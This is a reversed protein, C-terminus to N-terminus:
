LPPLSERCIPCQLRYRMWGELCISHFIHRCPTVMYARRTFISPRTSVGGGDGHGELSIIPIDIDQMCIACDFVKRGKHGQRHLNATQSEPVTVHTFGLPMLSGAEEDDERLVPHYDYAPPAWGGPVFFRPGLVEQSALVWVQAWVWAALVLFALRDTDVFLFNNDTTYFYVFPTLRLISQGIVFEWRLAKRCNRFINRYIQPCWFSLYIMSLANTYYSRIAKPWTAAYLSLFLLGMLTFYFRSYMAGLERRTNGTTTQTAPQGAPTTDEDAAADFEQDPPIIVPMAGTSGLGIATVTPPIIDVGPATITVGPANNATSLPINIPPTGRRDRERVEPAQVTWIDMLFKMGFFSVCMFALFAAASLTLFAADSFLVFVTFAGCAFGDGMSMIAITYFSVRSRTSPTSTDKMQKILLYIESAIVLAFAQIGRTVSRIHIELKPGRLHTGQHRPFEPPGQSELIFGCDPSFIVASMVLGPINTFSAGTPFRLENELMSLNSLDDVLTGAPTAAVHQQLYLIYECHPTPFIQEGPNNPSSSWPYTVFVSKRRRAIAASLTKNLLQQTPLFTAKSRSFHPLAFIGPFKEGTTSLLVSGLEPYHVGHLSMEWGDGSSQEDGISLEAKIERVQVGESEFVEGRTEDFKISLDGSKGTINRNFAQTTYLLGPALMSLNLLPAVRGEAMKSRVWKGRVIGTVNQYFPVFATESHNTPTPPADVDEPTQVNYRNGLHRGRYPGLVSLVQERAKAQAKPLLDWAYNDEERLGTANIWRENVADFDEYHTSNFIQLAHEEAQLLQERELRRHPTSRQGDPAITLFILLLVIVVISNARGNDM